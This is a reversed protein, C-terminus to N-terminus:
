LFYIMSERRTNRISLMYNYANAIDLSDKKIFKKYKFLMNMDNESFSPPYLQCKYMVYIRSINKDMLYWCKNCCMYEIYRGGRRVIYYGDRICSDPVEKPKDVKINEYLEDMDLRLKCSESEGYYKFLHRKKMSLNEKKM